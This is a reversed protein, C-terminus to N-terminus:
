RANAWFIEEKLWQQHLSERFLIEWTTYPSEWREQNFERHPQTLRDWLETPDKSFISLVLGKFSLVWVGPFHPDDPNISLTLGELPGEQLVRETPEYPRSDTHRVKCVGRGGRKVVLTRGPEPRTRM